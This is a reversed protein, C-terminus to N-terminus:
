RSVPTRIEGPSDKPNAHSQGQAKQTEPASQSVGKESTRMAPRTTKPQRQNNWVTIPTESHRTIWAKEHSKGKSLNGNQVAGESNFIQKFERRE